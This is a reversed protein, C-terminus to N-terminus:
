GVFGYYFITITSDSDYWDNEKPEEGNITVEQVMGARILLGTRLDKLNVLNINKFGLALYAQQVIRYDKKEYSVASDTLKIKNARRMRVEYYRKKSEDGSLYTFMAIIGGIFISYMGFLGSDVIFCIAGIVVFILAIIYAVIRGKRSRNEANEELELEKLRIKQESETQKIEAVNVHRYIYENENTIIIKSGCYSCFIQKRGEEVPLDAGCEPCKVTTFKIAM